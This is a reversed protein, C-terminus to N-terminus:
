PAAAAVRFTVDGTESVPESPERTRNSGNHSRMRLKITQGPRADLVLGVLKNSEGGGIGLQFPINFARVADPPFGSGVMAGALWAPGTWDEHGNRMAVKAGKDDVVTFSKTGPWKINPFTMSKIPAKGDNRVLLRLRVRDGVEYVKKQPSLYLGMTLGEKDPKGWAVSKPDIKEEGLQTERIKVHIFGDRDLAPIFLHIDWNRINRFPTPSQYTWVQLYSEKSLERSKVVALFAAIERETIGRTADRKWDARKIAKLVEAETLPPQGVGRGLKKSEQNFKRVAKAISSEHAEAAADTAAVTANNEIAAAEGSSQNNAFLVATAVVAAMGFATWPFATRRNPRGVIREIRGLLSGDAASLAIVSGRDGLQEVALLARGYEVRENLVAIVTDDCCHEREIRIRYSLWWVAPHYFFVTEVVVQVLNVLFDHRRIHALEHIFIAELQTPPLNTLMSAPLLIVPRFYGIVLPARVLNSQLVQVARNATLRKCARQFVNLVESSPPSVGIYRLRRLMLWSLLPRLSCVVVGSLWGCVILFLWPQLADGTTSLWNSPLQKDPHQLRSTTESTAIKEGARELTPATVEAAGDASVDAGIATATEDLKAIPDLAAGARMWTAVPCAIMVLLLALLAASRLQASCRTTLQLVAGALAAVLAFQWLSHVLVWGIREMHAHFAPSELLTIANM